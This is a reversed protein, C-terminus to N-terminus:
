FISQLNMNLLWDIINGAAFDFLGLVFGSILVMICVVITMNTTDKRSPWVIKRLETVVDDAWEVVPKRFQLSLFTLLGILIPVGHRVVDRSVLRAVEGSTSAGITALVFSAIYGVLLGAIMFSVTVVKSNNNEM